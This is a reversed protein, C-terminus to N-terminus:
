AYGSPSGSQKDSHRLELAGVLDSKTPVTQKLINESEGDSSKAFISFSIEKRHSLGQKCSRRATLCPQAKHAVEFYHGSDTSPVVPRSALLASPCPPRTGVVM